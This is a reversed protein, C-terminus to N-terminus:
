RMDMVSKSIPEAMQPAAGEEFAKMTPLAIAPKPEAPRMPPLIMMMAVETGRPSRGFHIPKIPATWPMAEIM